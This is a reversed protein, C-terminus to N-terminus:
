VVNQMIHSMSLGQADGGSVREGVVEHRIDAGTRAIDAEAMNHLWKMADTTIGATRGTTSQERGMGVKHTICPGVRVDDTVPRASGSVACDREYGWKYVTEAGRRRDCERSAYATGDAVATRVEKERARNM